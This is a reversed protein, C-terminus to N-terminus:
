PYTHSTNESTAVIALGQRQEVQAIEAIESCM